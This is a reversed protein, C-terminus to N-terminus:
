PARHARDQGPRVPTSARLGILTRKEDLSNAELVFHSSTGRVLLTQLDLDQALKDPLRPDGAAGALAALDNAYSGTQRRTREQLIALAALDM